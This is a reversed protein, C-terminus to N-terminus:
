GNIWREIKAKRELQKKYKRVDDSLLEDAKNQIYEYKDYQEIYAKAEKSSGKLANIVRKLPTDGLKQRVKKTKKWENDAKRQVNNWTNYKEIIEKQKEDRRMERILTSKPANKYWGKNAGRPSESKTPANAIKRKRYESIEKDSYKHRKSHKRDKHVGWKMGLVGYHMLENHEM